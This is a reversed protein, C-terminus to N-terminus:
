DSPMASGDGDPGMPSYWPGHKTDACMIEGNKSGIWTPGMGWKGTKDYFVGTMKGTAGGTVNSVTDMSLTEIKSVSRRGVNKAKKMTM